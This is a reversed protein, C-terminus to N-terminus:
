NELLYTVVALGLGLGINGTIFLIFAIIYFINM